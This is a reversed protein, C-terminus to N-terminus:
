YIKKVIVAVVFSAMALGSVVIEAVPTSGAKPENDLSRSSAKPQSQTQTSAVPQASPAEAQTEAPAPTAPQQAEPSTGQGDGTSSGDVHAVVDITCDIMKYCDGIIVNISSTGEKLATVNGNEDISITGESSEEVEYKVDKFIEKFDRGDHAVVKATSGVEMRGFDFKSVINNPDQDEDYIWQTKDGVIRCYGDDRGSVRTSELTNSAQEVTAYESESVVKVIADPSSGNYVVFTGEGTITIQHTEDNYEAINTESISYSAYAATPINLVMGVKALVGNYTSVSPDFKYFCNIGGDVYAQANVSLLLIAIIMIVTFVILKKTKKM